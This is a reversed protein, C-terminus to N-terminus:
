RHWGYQIWLQTEILVPTLQQSTTPASAGSQLRFIVSPLKKTSDTACSSAVDFADHEVVANMSGSDDVVMMVKAANPTQVLVPIESQGYSKTVVCLSLLLLM